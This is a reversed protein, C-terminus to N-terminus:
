GESDQAEACAQQAGEQWMLWEMSNRRYPNRVGKLESGPLEGQMYQIYGQSRPTMQEFEAKTYLRKSDM